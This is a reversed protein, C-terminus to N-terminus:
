YFSATMFTSEVHSYFTFRSMRLRMLIVSVNNFTANPVMTGGLASM